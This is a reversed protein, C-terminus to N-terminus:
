RSSHCSSSSSSSLMKVGELNLLYRKIDLGSSFGTLSGDSGVVRHCPIIIPIPNKGIAGGVARCGKPNGVKKAVSKYSVTIGFPINKLAHWVSKQFPTGQPDLAISFEKLEGNFYAQIEDSTKKLITPDKIWKPNASVKTTNTPFQLEILGNEGHVALLEGLPTSIYSYAVM